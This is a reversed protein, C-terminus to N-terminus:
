KSVEASAATIAAVIQPYASCRCINGSMFERIGEASGAHGGNICAVGSMIQGSTCYGCQFADHEIFASQLPHLEEGNALGEITTIEQTQARVALTMCGLVARGGIHVTCAGCEGRDCGKKPGNLGLKDRLTDVLNARVDAKIAHDQGNVRLVFDREQVSPSLPAVQPPELQVEALAPSLALSVAGTMSSRLLDRKTLKV